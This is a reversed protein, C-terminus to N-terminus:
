VFLLLLASKPSYYYYYYYPIGIGIYLLLLLLVTNRNRNFTVSPMGAFSFGAARGHTRAGSLVEGPVKGVAAALPKGAPDLFVFHPVGQVRYASMESAWKSNEVNLMVFNVKPSYAQELEYEM